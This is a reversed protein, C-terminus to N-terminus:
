LTHTCILTHAAKIVVMDQGEDRWHVVLVHQVVDSILCRDWIEAVQDPKNAAMDDFQVLTHLCIFLLHWRDKETYNESHGSPTLCTEAKYSRRTSMLHCKQLVHHMTYMANFYVEVTGTFKKAEM